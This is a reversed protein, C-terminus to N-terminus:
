PNKAKPASTGGGKREPAAGLRYVKLDDFTLHSRWNNFGFHRGSLPQTDTLHALYEGDAYWAITAGVKLVAMKYTHGADVKRKPGNVIVAGEGEGHEELRALRNVRNNWGGYIFIYGRGHHEPTENFAECKIDGPFHDTTKGARDKKEYSDSRASFEIRTDGEPLQKLLFAGANDAGKNTLQGGELKWGDSYAKWHEGLTPRQFDDEFVLTGGKLKGALEKPPELSRLNGTEPKQNAQERATKLKPTEPYRERCASLTLLASLAVLSLAVLSLISTRM